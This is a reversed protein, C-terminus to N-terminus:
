LLLDVDAGCPLVTASLLSQGDPHSDNVPYSGREM